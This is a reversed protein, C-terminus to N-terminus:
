QSVNTLRSPPQKSYSRRRKKAPPSIVPQRLSEIRPHMLPHRGPQIFAPRLAAHVVVSYTIHVIDSAMWTDPIRHNVEDHDYDRSTLHVQHGSRSIYSIQPRSITINISKDLLNLPRTRKVLQLAEAAFVQYQARAQISGDLYPVTFTGYFSTSSKFHYEQRGYVRVCYMAPKSTTFKPMEDDDNPIPSIMPPPSTSEDSSIDDLLPDVTHTRNVPNIICQELSTIDTDVDYHQDPSTPNSATGRITVPSRWDRTGPQMQETGDDDDLLRLDEPSIEDFEDNTISRGELINDIAQIVQETTMADNNNSDLSAQSLQQNLQEVDLDVPLPRSAAM